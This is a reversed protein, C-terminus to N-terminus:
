SKTTEDSVTESLNKQTKNIVLIDNSECEPCEYPQNQTPESKWRYGCEQCECEFVFLDPM